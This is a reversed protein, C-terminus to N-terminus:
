DFYGLRYQYCLDVFYLSVIFVNGEFWGIYIYGQFSYLIWVVLFWKIFLVLSKIDYNLNM